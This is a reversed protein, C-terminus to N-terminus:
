KAIIDRVTRDIRRYLGETDLGVVRGGAVVMRGDVFVTDVDAAKACYVIGAIMDNRPHFHPKEIDLMVMDALMGPAIRGLEEGMGIAVAGGVTALKLMQYAPMVVPNDGAVKQLFSGTRMEEIMDLDNNSSAGDTGIAVNVGAEVMQAVPAIGSSIKMNSQSNYVATVGHRALIEIDSPTVHVCHAAITPLEFLGADRLYETPTRGYRERVIRQEDLTESIHTHMGIGYYLALDIGRKLNDTSVSFPSHPAVRVTLRDCESAVKLTEPLSHEFEEMRPGDVFCPCLVARIGMAQAVRGIAEEHWYMDVLTTTGGLLMEAMGLQAGLAIEEAGLRAEFPWIHDNLWAMLPIDDAYNRVLTMAVHTHTNVLGPMLLKGRGDVVRADPNAAHWEEAVSRKDTVLAIKNGSIAVSGEFYKPETGEATMPVVLCDKILTKM